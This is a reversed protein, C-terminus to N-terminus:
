NPDSSKIAFFSPGYAGTRVFKQEQFDYKFIGERLKGLSMYRFILDGEDTVDWSNIRTATFVGGNAKKTVNLGDFKGDKDIDVKERTFKYYYLIPRDKPSDIWKERTLHYIARSKSWLEGTEDTRKRVEELYAQDENSFQNADLTFTRGDTRKIQVKEKVFRLFTGEFTQGANNKWTRSSEIGSALSTVLTLILCPIIAKVGGGFWWRM